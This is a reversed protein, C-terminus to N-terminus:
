MSFVPFFLHTAKGRKRFKSKVAFDLRKSGKSINETKLNWITFHVKFFCVFLFFVGNVKAGRLIPSEACYVIGCFIFNDPIALVCKSVHLAHTILNQTSPFFWLLINQCCLLLCIHFFAWFHFHQNARGDKTKAVSANTYKHWANKAYNDGQFCFHWKWKINSWECSRSVNKEHRRLDSRFHSCKMLSQNM